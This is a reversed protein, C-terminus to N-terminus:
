DDRGSASSAFYFGLASGFLGTEAPLMIQLWDRLSAWRHGGVIAGVFSFILTLLFAGCFTSALLTRTREKYLRASYPRNAPYIIDDLVLPKRDNADGDGGDGNGASGPGATGAPPPGNGSGAAEGRVPLRTENRPKPVKLQGPDAM